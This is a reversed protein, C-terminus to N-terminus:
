WNLCTVTTQTVGLCDHQLKISVFGCHKYQNYRLYSSRRYLRILFPSIIFVVEKSIAKMIRSNNSFVYVWMPRMLLRPVTWLNGLPLVAHFQQLVECKKWYYLLLRYQPKNHHDNLRHPLPLASGKDPSCMHPSKSCSQCQCRKRIRRSCPLSHCSSYEWVSM